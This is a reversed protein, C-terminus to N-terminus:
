SHFESQLVNKLGWNIGPTFVGTRYARPLYARQRLSLCTGPMISTSFCIICLHVLMKKWNFLILFLISKISCDVIGNFQSVWYKTVDLIGLYWSDVEQVKVRRLFLTVSLSIHSLCVVLSGCLEAPKFLFQPLICSVWDNKPLLYSSPWNGLISIRVFSYM